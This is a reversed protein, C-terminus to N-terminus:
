DGFIDKFIYIKNKLMIHYFSQLLFMYEKMNIILCIKLDFSIKMISSLMFLILSM